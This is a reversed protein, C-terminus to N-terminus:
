FGQISQNLSNIENNVPTDDLVKNLDSSINTVTDTSTGQNQQTSYQQPQWNSSFLYWGVFVIILIIIIAIVILKLNM